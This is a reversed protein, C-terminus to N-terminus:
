KLLSKDVISCKLLRFAKMKAYMEADKLDEDDSIVNLDGDSDEFCLNMEYWDIPRGFNGGDRCAQDLFSMLKDKNASLQSM